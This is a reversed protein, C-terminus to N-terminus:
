ASLSSARRAETIVISRLMFYNPTRKNAETFAFYKQAESVNGMRILAKALSLASESVDSQRRTLDDARFQHFMKLAFMINERSVADKEVAVSVAWSIARQWGLSGREFLSLLEQTYAEDLFRASIDIAHTVFIEYEDSSDSARELELIQMEDSILEARDLGAKYAVEILILLAEHAGHGIEDGILERAQAITSQVDEGKAYRARAVLGLQYAKEVQKAGSDVIEQIVTRSDEWRARGETVAHAFDRRRWGRSCEWLDKVIPLFEGNMLVLRQFDHPSVDERTNVAAGNSEQNSNLLEQILRLGIGSKEDSLSLAIKCIADTALSPSSHLKEALLIAQDHRGIASLIDVADMIGPTFRLRGIGPPPLECALVERVWDNIANQKKGQLEQFCEFLLRSSDVAVPYKPDEESKQIDQLTKFCQGAFVSIASENEQYTGENRNGSNIM